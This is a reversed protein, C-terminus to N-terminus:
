DTELRVPGGRMLEKRLALYDEESIAEKDRAEKLDILESGITTTRNYHMTGMNFMACGPVFVLMGMGIVIPWWGAIKM